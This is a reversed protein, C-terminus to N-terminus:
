MMMISMNNCVIVGLGGGVQALVCDIQDQDELDLSKPTNEAEIAQGDLLFRFSGIQVGKEESFAKFVKGM